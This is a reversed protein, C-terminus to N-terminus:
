LLDVSLVSSVGKGKIGKLFVILYRTSLAISLEQDVMHIVVRVKYAKNPSSM